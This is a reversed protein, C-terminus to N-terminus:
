WKRLANSWRGLKYCENGQLVLLNLNLKNNVKGKNGM